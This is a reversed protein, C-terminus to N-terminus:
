HPREDASLGAFWGGIAQSQQEGLSSLPVDMDRDALDIVALGSFVSGPCCLSEISSTTM